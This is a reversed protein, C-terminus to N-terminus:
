SIRELFTFKETAGPAIRVKFIFTFADKREVTISPNIIEVTGHGVNRIVEVEVTENKNNILSVEFNTERIRGSSQFNTIQTDAVIDFASGIKLEVDQNLSTNELRAVGVFQQTSDKEDVEYFNVNGKPLPVGIGDQTSNKFAILVDVDNGQVRYQYKRTYKVTKIPYLSLQKEQNNDIDAPQDLTFMRLDSFAREEFQPASMDMATGGRAMMMMEPRSQSHQQYTTVDGAILKLNVNKFDKGSRNNITVWSNLSFDNKNLVVNYTAKWEIGQMLYSLDAAFKGARDANLQWRLTPKTYFDEPMDPLQINNVKQSNVINLENTDENLLGYNGYDFFVLTGNFNENDTTLRVNRNIYRQMMKHTNALDYEFNQSYLQVNRNRPIFIVSETIISTPINEFSIYQTGRTLDLEINTKFLAQNQNYITLYDNPLAATFIFCICLLFLTKKM